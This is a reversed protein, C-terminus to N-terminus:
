EREPGGGRNTVGGANLQAVLTSAARLPMHCPAWPDGEYANIDAVEKTPDDM